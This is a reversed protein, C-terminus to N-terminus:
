LMFSSLLFLFLCGRQSACPHLPAYRIASIQKQGSTPVESTNYTARRAAPSSSTAPSHSSSAAMLRATRRRKDMSERSGHPNTVRFFVVDIDALVLANHGNTQGGRTFSSSAAGPTGRTNSSNNSSSNSSTRRASADVVLPPSCDRVMRHLKSLSMGGCDADYAFGTYRVCCVLFAVGVLVVCFSFLLFLLVVCCLLTVALRVICPSCALFVYQRFLRRLSPLASVIVHMLDHPLTQVVAHPVMIDVVSADGTASAAKSAEGNHQPTHEHVDDEDMSPLAGAPADRRRSSADATRGDVLAGSAAGTAGGAISGGGGVAKHEEESAHLQSADSLSQQQSLALQSELMQPPFLLVPMLVVADHAQQPQFLSLSSSV